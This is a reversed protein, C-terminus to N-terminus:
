STLWKPKYYISKTGSLYENVINIVEATVKGSEKHKWDQYETAGEDIHDIEIQFLFVNIFGAVISRWSALVDDYGYLSPQYLYGIKDLLASNYMQCTGIIHKCQEVVLWRQGGEHPLQILTSKYDSDEHWTTEWCDKRKLGIIGINPQRQISEEMLEVWGSQHIVVDNDMKIAHENPQRTTWAKNIAEATGINEPLHIVEVNYAKISNLFSFTEFCSNNNVIIIRHKNRDVTNFLSEITRRTCNTKQNEETDHVAMAILAM